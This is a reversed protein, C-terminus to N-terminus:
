SLKEIIVYFGETYSGDKRDEEEWERIVAEADEKREFGMDPDFVGSVKGMIYFM